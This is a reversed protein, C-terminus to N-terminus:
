AARRRRLMMVFGAAMLGMTAPEPIGQTYLATIDAQTLVSTQILAEDIKGILGEIPGSANFETGVNLRYTGANGSEIHTDGIGSIDVPVNDLAGNLYLRAQDNTRDVVGVVHYWTGVNILPTSGFIDQNGGSGNLSLRIVGGESNRYSMTFGRPDFAPAEKSFVFTQNAGLTTLNIWAAFSFSGSLDIADPDNTATFGTAGDLNMSMNGAYPPIPPVDTSLSAGGGEQTGNFGNGSSDSTMNAALDDMLYVVDGNINARASSAMMSVAAVVAVVSLTFRTM